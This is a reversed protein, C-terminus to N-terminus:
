RPRYIRYRETGVDWNGDQTYRKLLAAHKPMAVGEYPLVHDYCELARRKRDRDECSLVIEADYDSKGPPCVSWVEKNAWRDHIYAYLSLHHHHGYEGEVGHTVIRDYGDLDLLAMRETELPQRPDPEIGPFLEACAGLGKCAAFFKWARVWDLRPVTMCIITWDQPQSLVLGGFWMVEDDPHAVVLVSRMLAVAVALAVVVTAATDPV